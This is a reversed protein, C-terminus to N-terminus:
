INIAKEEAYRMTVEMLKKLSVSFNIRDTRAMNLYDYDYILLALISAVKPTIVYSPVISYPDEGELSWINEMHQPHVNDISLRKGDYGLRLFPIQKEMCLEKIEKQSGVNDVCIFVMGELLQSTDRNLRCNFAYTETEPRLKHILESALVAKNKGIDNEGYPLRNLNHLELDDYDVLNLKDSGLMALDLAVWTGIGGLGVVTSVPPVRIRMSEQRSYISM